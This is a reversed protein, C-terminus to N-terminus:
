GGGGQVEAMFQVTDEPGLIAIDWGELGPVGEEMLNKSIPQGALLRKVNEEELGLILVQRGDKTPGAAIVM